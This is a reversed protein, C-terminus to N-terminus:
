KRANTLRKQFLMDNVRLERRQERPLVSALIAAPANKYRGEKLCAAVNLPQGIADAFGREVAEKATMWTEAAMWATLDDKSSKGGTRALYTDIITQDVKDLLDIAKLHEAKNGYTMSSAEHIMVFANEAIEITDGAMAVFSAASAALSDIAVNIKEGHRRLMNYITQAEFVSGGPSNIRVTVPKGKLKDLENKVYQASVMGAWDPGIEDYIYLESM